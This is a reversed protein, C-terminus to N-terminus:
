FLALLSDLLNLLTEGFSDATTKLTPEPLTDAEKLPDQLVLLPRPTPTPLGNASNPVEGAGAAVALMMMLVSARVIKMM